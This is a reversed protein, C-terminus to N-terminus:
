SPGVGSGPIPEMQQEQAPEMQQDPIPKVRQGPTVFEQGVTIFTVTPPMGTVWLGDPGDDIIQVPQFEVVNDDNLTKIGIEGADSLTLIAPSVRHAPREEVPLHLEASLGQVIQRDPGGAPNEAELEIRFTRTTEDAVSSIYRVTGQATDGTVFKAMGPDGLALKNVDRESIQGVMLIPDLDVLQAVPDGVDVFDGIEAYRADVVGDFPARILTHSIDIEMRAVAARAGEYKAKADALSTEARYGKESLQVAAEYEIRRQAELAKAQRLQAERDETELRVLPAGAAVTSGKEVFVEAVRGRTEASIEVSRSAATRGRLVIKAMRPEATQQRVRVQPLAPETKAQASPVAAANDETELQGSLVWGTTALALVGAVVYSLKM